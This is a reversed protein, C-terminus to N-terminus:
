RGALPPSNPGARQDSWSRCPEWRIVGTEDIFFSRGGTVGPEAPFAIGTWSSSGSSEVVFVYGSKPVGDETAQALRVDIMNAQYVDDLDGYTGYRTCFLEQASSLTRLASIASAENAPSPNSTFASPLYVVLLIVVVAVAPVLLLYRYKKLKFRAKSFPHGCSLCSVGRRTEGHPALVIVGCDPCPVGVDEIPLIWRACSPCKVEYCVDEPLIPILNRCKPCQIEIRM